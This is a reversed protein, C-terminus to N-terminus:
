PHTSGEGKLHCTGLNQAMPEGAVEQGEEIPLKEQIETTRPLELMYKTTGPNHRGKQLFPAQIQKAGSQKHSQPLEKICTFISLVVGHHEFGELM